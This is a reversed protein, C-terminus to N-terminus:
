IQKHEEPMHHLFLNIMYKDNDNYKDTSGYLVPIVFSTCDEAGQITINFSETLFLVALVIKNNAKPCVKKLSFM